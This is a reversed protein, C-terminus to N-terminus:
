NNDHHIVSKEEFKIIDNMSYLVGGCIKYYSPGMKKARWNNLTNVNMHWREALDEATIFEASM